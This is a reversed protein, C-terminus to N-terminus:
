RGRRLLTAARDNLPSGNLLWKVNEAVSEAREIRQSLAMSKQIAVM